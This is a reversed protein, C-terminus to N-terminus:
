SAFRFRNNIIANMKKGQQKDSILIRLIPTFKFVYKCWHFGGTKSNAIVPLISGYVFRQKVKHDAFLYLINIEFDLLYAYFCFALNFILARKSQM